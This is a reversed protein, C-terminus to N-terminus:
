LTFALVLKAVNATTCVAEHLCFHYHQVNINFILLFRRVTHCKVERHMLVTFWKEFEEGQFSNKLTKTRLKCITCFALM